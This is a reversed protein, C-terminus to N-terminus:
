SENGKTKDDDDDDSDTTTTTTTQPPQQEEAPMRRREGDEFRERLEDRFIVVDAPAQIGLRAKRYPWHRVEVMVIEMERGDPLRLIVKQGENRSLILM